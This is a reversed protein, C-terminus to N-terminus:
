HERGFALHSQVLAMLAFLAMMMEGGEEFAKMLSLVSESVSVGAHRLNAPLRDFVQVMVGCGGFVGVTWAVPELRFIGKVLPIFYRVLPILVAAFFLVFFVLVFLKPMLPVTGSTLFRMKFVTGRFGSAVEPWINSFLIKHLDTERVIAMVGLLAWLCQRRTGGSVTPCLWAVPIILAFLPLTMLEVPSAGNQDFLPILADPSLAAWVALLVASCVCFLVPATLWSRKSILLDMVYEKIANGTMIDYSLGWQVPQGSLQIQYVVM